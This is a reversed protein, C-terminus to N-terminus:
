TDWIRGKKERLKGKRSSQQIKLGIKEKENKNKRKRQIEKEKKRKKKYKMWKMDQEKERERDRKKKRKRWQEGGKITWTNSKWTQFWAIHAHVPRWYWAIINYASPFFSWLVSAHCKEKKYFHIVKNRSLDFIRYTQSLSVCVCASVLLSLVCVWVPQSVMVRDMITQSQCSHRHTYSKTFGINEEPGHNMHDAEAEWDIHATKRNVSSSCGTGCVGSQHSQWLDIDLVKNKTYIHKSSRELNYETWLALHPLIVPIVM